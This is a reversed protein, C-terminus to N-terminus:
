AGLQTASRLTALLEEEGEVVLTELEPHFGEADGGDLSPRRTPLETPPDDVDMVADNLVGVKSPKGEPVEQKNNILPSALTPLGQSTARHITALLEEEAAADLGDDDEDLKQQEQLAAGLVDAKTSRTLAEVEEQFLPSAVTSLGQSTARHISAILDMEGPVALLGRPREDQELDSCLWDLFDKYKVHNSNPDGAAGLLMQIQAETWEAPGLNRLLKTLEARAITGDGQTDFETFVQLVRETPTM